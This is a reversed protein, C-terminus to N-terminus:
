ASARTFITFTGSDSSESSPATVVFCVASTVSGDEAHGSQPVKVIKVRALAYRRKALLRRPDRQRM